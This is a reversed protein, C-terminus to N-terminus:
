NTLYNRVSVEIASNGTPIEFRDRSYTILYDPEQDSSSRYCLIGGYNTGEDQLCYYIKQGASNVATYNVRCYGNDISHIKFDKSGNM